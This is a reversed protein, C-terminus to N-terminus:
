SLLNLIRGLLLLLAAVFALVPLCGACALLRQSLRVGSRERREPGGDPRKDAPM